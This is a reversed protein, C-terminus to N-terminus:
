KLQLILSFFEKGNQRIPTNQLVINKFLGANELIKILESVSSTYGNIKIEKQNIYEYYILYTDLPLIQTLKRLYVLAFSKQNNLIRLIREKQDIETILKSYIDVQPKLQKINKELFRKEKELEKMDRYANITLFISSLTLVASLGSLILVKKDKVKFSKLSHPPVIKRELAQLAIRAGYFPDQIDIDTRSCNTILLTDRLKGKSYIVKECKKEPFLRLFIKDNLDPIFYKYLFTTLTIVKISKNEIFPYILEKPIAFILLETKNDNGGIENILVLFDEYNFPFLEPFIYKINAKIEAIAEKPFSVKRAFIVDRGICMYVKDRWSLSDLFSEATKYFFEKVEKNKKVTVFIGKETLESGILNFFSM